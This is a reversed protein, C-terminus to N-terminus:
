TKKHSLEEALSLKRQVELMLDENLSLRKKIVGIFNRFFKSLKTSNVKNEQSMFIQESERNLLEFNQISKKELLNNMSPSKQHAKMALLKGDLNKPVEPDPHNQLLKTIKNSMKGSVQSSKKDLIIIKSKKHMHLDANLTNVKQVQPGQELKTSSTPESGVKEFKWSIKNKLSSEGKQINLSKQSNQLNEPIKSSQRKLSKQSIRVNQSKLPSPSIKPLM